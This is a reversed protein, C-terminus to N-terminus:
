RDFQVNLLSRLKYIATGLAGPRVDRDHMAELLKWCAHRLDDLDAECGALDEELSMVQELLDHYDSMRGGSSQRNEEVAASLLEDWTFDTGFRTALQYTSDTMSDTIASMFQDLAMWKAHWKDAREREAVVQKHAEFLQGQLKNREEELDNVERQIMEIQGDRDQVEGHLDVVRREALNHRLQTEQLDAEMLKMQEHWVDTPDPVDPVVFGREIAELRRIRGYLDRIADDLYSM